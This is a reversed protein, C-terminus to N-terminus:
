LPVCVSTVDNIGYLVAMIDNDHMM